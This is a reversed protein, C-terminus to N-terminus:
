KELEYKGYMPKITKEISKKSLILKEKIKEYNDIYPSYEEDSLSYYALNLFWKIRVSEDPDLVFSEDNYTDCCNVIFDYYKERNYFDDLVTSQSTHKKEKVIKIVEDIIVQDAKEEAAFTKELNNEEINGNTNKIENLYQEKLNEIKEYLKKEAVQEKEYREFQQLNINSENKQNGSDNRFSCGNLNLISAIIVLVIIFISSRKTNSM